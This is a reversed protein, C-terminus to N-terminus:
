KFKGSVIEEHLQKAETSNSFSIYQKLTKIAEDKKGLKVLSKSFVIWSEQMDNKLRNTALAYNYAEEFNGMEYYKKAIFLSLAPNNDAQFRKIVHEIDSNKSKREINLTPKKDLVEVTTNQVVVPAAVVNLPEKKEIKEVLVSEKPQAIEKQHMEKQNTKINKVFGMSPEIALSEPKPEQTLNQIKKEVQLPTPTEKKQVVEVTAVEIHVPTKENKQALFIVLPILALLPLTYPLLSKIKYVMWRKELNKVDLM